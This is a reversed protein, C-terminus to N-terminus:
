FKFTLNRHWFTLRTNVSLERALAMAIMTKYNHLQRYTRHLVYRMIIQKEKSNASKEVSTGKLIRKINTKKQRRNQINQTKRNKKHQKTHQTEHVRAKWNKYL